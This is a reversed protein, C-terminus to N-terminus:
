EQLRPDCRGPPITLGLSSRSIRFDVGPQGAPGVTIWRTTGSRVDARAEFGLSDRYFAVCAHPDDHRLLAAQIGIDM